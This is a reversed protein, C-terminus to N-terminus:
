GHTGGRSPHHVHEPHHKCVRDAQVDVAGGLHLRVQTNAPGPVFMVLWPDISGDIDHFVHIVQKLLTSKGSEPAGLILIEIEDPENKLEM